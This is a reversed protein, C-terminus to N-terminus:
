SKLKLRIMLYPRKISLGILWVFCTAALYPSHLYIYFFITSQKKVSICEIQSVCLITVSKQLETALAGGIDGASSREGALYEVSGDLLRDLLFANLTLIKWHCM